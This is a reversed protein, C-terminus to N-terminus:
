YRLLSSIASLRSIESTMLDLVTWGLSAIRDSFFRMPLLFGLVCSVASLTRHQRSETRQLPKRSVTNGFSVSVHTLFPPEWKRVSIAELSNM